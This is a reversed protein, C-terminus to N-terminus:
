EKTDWFALEGRNHPAASGTILLRGDGSFEAALVPGAHRRLGILEQGTRLDWLKVEGDASGSMLTRLDPAVALTTIRGVHGLLTLEEKGNAASCIKISSGRGASVIRENGIFRVLWTGEGHGAIKVRATPDGVYWIGIAHEATQAALWHGNDSFTLHRVPAALGTDIAHQV